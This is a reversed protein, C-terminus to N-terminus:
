PRRKAHHRVENTTVRNTTMIELRLVTRTPLVGEYYDTFAAYTNGDSHQLIAPSLYGAKDSVEGGVVIYHKNTDFDTVHLCNHTM